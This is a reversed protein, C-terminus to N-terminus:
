TRGTEFLGIQSAPVISAYKYIITATAYVLTIKYPLLAHPWAVERSSSWIALTYITFAFTLPINEASIFTANWLTENSFITSATPGRYRRGPIRETRYVRIM